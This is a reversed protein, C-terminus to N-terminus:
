KANIASLKPTKPNQPEMPVYRYVVDAPTEPDDLFLPQHIFLAIREHGSLAADVGFGWFGLNFLM